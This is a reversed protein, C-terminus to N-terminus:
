ENLHESLAKQMLDFDPEVGTWAKFQGIAQYALMRDGTIVTCKNKRALRILQTEVPNYVMDLIIKEKPFFQEDIICDDANPNMGVSTTNIIIDNKKIEKEMEEFRVYNGFFEEGLKKAKDYTRNIITFSANEKSLVYCLSRSAGGAGIVLVKKGSLGTVESLAKYVGYYDTNYGKLFNNDNVFTNTAGIKQATEDIEDLYDMIQEKHPVTVAGGRFKFNRFNEVFEKLEEKRVKFPVYVYDLKKNRFNANHMFKSKSNEAHEGIVGLIKTDKNIMSFNYVEELYDANIQGPASEYGSELSAYTFVSGYRAALIRSMDGRLGMCFSILNNKENLLSFINFCDNISRAMTVIKILDPSLSKIKEYKKKLNSLSSTREFDHHSIIIKTKSKKEIIRKIFEKSTELEIDIYDAKKGIGYELLGYRKEEPGDYNGGFKKPRCTLITKKSTSNLLTNLIETDINRIYDIRLEIIDSIKEAKKIQEIAEKVSNAIIPICVKTM